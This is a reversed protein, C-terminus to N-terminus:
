SVTEKTEPTPTAQPFEPLSVGSLHSPMEPPAPVASEEENPWDNWGGRVRSSRGKTVPINAVLAVTDSSADSELNLDMAERDIDIYKSIVMVLEDRMKDLVHPELQTRDHMLVLKLRNCAASRGVSSPAQASSATESVTESQQFFQILRNLMM